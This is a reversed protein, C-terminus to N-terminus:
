IKIQLYIEEITNVTKQLANKAEINAVLEVTTLTESKTLM